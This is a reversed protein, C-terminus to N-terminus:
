ASGVLPTLFICLLIWSVSQLSRKLFRRIMACTESLKPM